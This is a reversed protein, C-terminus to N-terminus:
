PTPPQRKNKEQDSADPGRLIEELSEAERSIWAETESEQLHRRIDEEAVIVRFNDTCGPEATRAEFGPSLKYPPASLSQFTAHM